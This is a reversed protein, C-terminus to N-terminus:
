KNPKCQNGQKKLEYVYAVKGATEKYTADGDEIAKKLDVAFPKLEGNYKTRIAKDHYRKGNWYIVKAGAQEGLCEFNSAKYITGVHNHEMDAYSVVVKHQTHKKLWRLMGGIFYSETNKPTKDVCCLRRLEIVDQEQEGFRKWQNAMALRGFIAAGIIEGDCELKFCYDSIIGNINKSYHWHEIFGVVDDRTSLQCKFERVKKQTVDPEVYEFFDFGITM